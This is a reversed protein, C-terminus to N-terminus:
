TSNKSTILSSPCSHASQPPHNIESKPLKDTLIYITLSSLPSHLCNSHRIQLILHNLQSIKTCLVDAQRLCAISANNQETTNDLSFLLPIQIRFPPFWVKESLTANFPFVTSTTICETSQKLVVFNWFTPEQEVEQCYIPFDIIVNYDIGTHDYTTSIPTNSLPPSFAIYFLYM